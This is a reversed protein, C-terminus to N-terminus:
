KKEPTSAPAAPPNAPSVPAAAPTAAPATGGAPPAPPAPPKPRSQFARVREAQAAQKIQPHADPLAMVKDATAIAEDFKKSLNYAQALRVMTAPDPNAGIDLAKKFESAAVEYNKRVMAIVGNTEYVAATYDKKASNWQEDTVQPNPKEAAKLAELAGKAYKEATALKEEKDLDFERTRKAYASGLMMMVTYNKPDLKLTEEGFFVMKEFDNKREYAETMLLYALSKFDTDAFKTVLANAAAIRGDADQAQFMANIADVEKQSKAQPQKQALLTATAAVVVLAARHIRNM